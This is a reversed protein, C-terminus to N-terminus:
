DEFSLNAPEKPFASKVGVTTTGTLPVSDDVIEFELNDFWMQGTGNLLAGFALASAEEPVDLVISYRQWDTTGKVARNHMNDFALSQNAGFLDVRLWLGCWATVNLSKVSGTMRVRKGAFKEAGCSQMLTGFGDISKKISKITASKKGDHAVTDIGMEYKDPESGAKYWGVPLTLSLLASAVVPLLALQLLNM